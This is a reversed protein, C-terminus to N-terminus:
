ESRLSTENAMRCRDIRHVTQILNFKIIGVSHTEFLKCKAIFDDMKAHILLPIPNYRGVLPLGLKATHLNGDKETFLSWSQVTSRCGM